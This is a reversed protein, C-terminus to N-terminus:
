SSRSCGTFGSIQRTSQATTARGNAGLRRCVFFFPMGDARGFWRNIVPKSTNRDPEAFM